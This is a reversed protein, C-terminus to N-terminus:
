IDEVRGRMQRDSNTKSRLCSGKKPSEPEGCTKFVVEKNMTHRLRAGENLSELEDYKKFM